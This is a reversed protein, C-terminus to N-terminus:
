KDELSEVGILDKSSAYLIKLSRLIYGSKNTNEMIERTNNM